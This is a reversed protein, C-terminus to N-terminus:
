MRFVCKSHAGRGLDKIILLLQFIIIKSNHNSIYCPFNGKLSIVKETANQCIFEPVYIQYFIFKTLRLPCKWVKLLHLINTKYKTIHQLSNTIPSIPLTDTTFFLFWTLFYYWPFSYSPSFSHWFHQKRTHFLVIHSLWILQTFIFNNESM